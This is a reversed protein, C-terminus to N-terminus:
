LYRLIQTVQDESLCNIFHSVISIIYAIDTCIHSLYILM